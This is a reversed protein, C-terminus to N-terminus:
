SAETLKVYLRYFASFSIFAILSGTFFPILFWPGNISVYLIIGSGIAVTLLLLPSGLTILLTNKFLSRLKMQYHALLSFFNITAVFLVVGLILFVFMFTINTQSLYYYDAAWIIWIGTLVLGALMSKKYNERYYKWYSKVLSSEERELIWDRVSAFMAATAPFFLFPALLAVPILLVFLDMPRVAVFSNMVILVIPLNFFIWLLNIVSFRMIWESVGYLGGMFGSM